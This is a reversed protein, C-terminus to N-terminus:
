KKGWCYKLNNAIRIKLFDYCDKFKIVELRMKYGEVYINILSDTNRIDKKFKIFSSIYDSNLKRCFFNCTQKKVLGKSDITHGYFKKNFRYNVGLLNEIYHLETLHELVGGIACLYGNSQFLDDILGGKGFSDYDHVEKHRNDFFNGYILYSFIPDCSRKEPDLKRLNESIYELNSPTNYIDFISEGKLFSYSFTPIIINGGFSEVSLIFKRFSELRDSNNKGLRILGSPNLHIAIPSKSTLQSFEDISLYLNNKNIDM